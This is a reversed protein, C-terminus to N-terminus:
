NLSADRQHFIRRLVPLNLTRCLYLLSRALQLRLQRLLRLFGHSLIDILEVLLGLLRVLLSLLCNLLQLRKVLLGLLIVLLGLLFEIEQLSLKVCKNCYVRCDEVLLMESDQLQLWCTSKDSRTEAEWAGLLM